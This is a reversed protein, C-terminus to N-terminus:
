RFALELILMSFTILKAKNFTDPLKRALFVLLFSLIALLGIYGLSVGFGAINKEAALSTEGGPKSTRFVTLM